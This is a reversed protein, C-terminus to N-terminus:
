KVEISVDDIYWGLGSYSPYLYNSGRGQDIFFAIEINKGAYASIDVIPYTWEGSSHTYSVLNDWAVAPVIRIRTRGVDYSGFSAWHRFRLHIEEDAAVTPLQIRPSILNSENNDAYNGALNTAVCQTGAFCDNPGSSPMGSESISNDVYWDGLGGGVDTEFDFSYFADVPVENVEVSAASEGANNVSSVLYYYRTDPTM